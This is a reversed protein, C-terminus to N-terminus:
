PPARTPPRCSASSGWSTSPAWRGSPSRTTSTTRRRARARRALPRLAARARGHARDLGDDGRGAGPPARRRDGPLADGRRHRRLDRQGRRGGRRPDPPHLCWRSSCRPPPSPRSPAGGPWRWCGSRSWRCRRSRCSSGSTAAARDHHRRRRRRDGRRQGGGAAERDQRDAAGGGRARRPARPGPRPGRPPARVLARLLRAGDRPGADILAIDEASVAPLSVTVNPLNLGQRSAVSGGVEVKTVVEQDSVEDVRLRVAGDALYCVDGADVLEAFGRWAM